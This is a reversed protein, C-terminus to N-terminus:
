QGGAAVSGSVPACQISLSKQRSFRDCRVHRDIILHHVIHSSAFRHRPRPAITANFVQEYNQAWRNYFLMLDEASGHDHVSRIVDRAMEFTRPDGSSMTRSRAGTLRFCEDHRTLDVAVHLGDVDFRHSSSSHASLFRHTAAPLSVRLPPPPPLPRERVM